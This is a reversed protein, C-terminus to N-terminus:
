RDADTVNTWKKRKRGYHNIDFRWGDGAAVARRSSISKTMNRQECISRSTDFMWRDARCVRGNEDFDVWEHWSDRKAIAAFTSPEARRSSVKILLWCLFRNSSFFDGRRREYSRSLKIVSRWRTENANDLWVFAANSSTIWRSFFAPMPISPWDFRSIRFM